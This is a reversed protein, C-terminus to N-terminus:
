LGNIGRLKPVYSDCTSIRDGRGSIEMGSLYYRDTGATVYTRPEVIRLLRALRETDM